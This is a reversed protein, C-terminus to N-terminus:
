QTTPLSFQPPPYTLSPLFTLPPHPSWLAIFLHSKLKQRFSAIDKVNDQDCRHLCVNSKIQLGNFVFSASQVSFATNRDTLLGYFAINRCVEFKTSHVKSLQPNETSSVQIEVGSTGWQPPYLSNPSSPTSSPNASPSHCIFRTVYMGRIFGTTFCVCSWRINFPVCANHGCWGGWM